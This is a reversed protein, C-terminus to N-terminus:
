KMEGKTPKPEKVEKKEVSAVAPEPVVPVVPEVAPEQPNKPESDSVSKELNETSVGVYKLGLLKAKEELEKRHEQRSSM